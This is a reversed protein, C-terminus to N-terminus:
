SDYFRLTNVFSLAAPSGAVLESSWAILFVHNFGTTATGNFIIKQLMKSGPIRVRRTAVENGTVGLAHSKDYLVKFSKRNEYSTDSLPANTSASATFLLVATPVATQTDEKWQVLMLRVVQEVGTGFFMYELEIGASNIEAGVRQGTGDGQAIAILDVVLLDDAEPLVANQITTNRNKEGLSQAIRKVQKTQRKSLAKGGKAKSQKPRRPPM